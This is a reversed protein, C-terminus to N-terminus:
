HIVCVNLVQTPTPPPPPQAPVLAKIGTEWENRGHALKARDLGLALWSTVFRCADNVSVGDRESVCVCVCVPVEMM